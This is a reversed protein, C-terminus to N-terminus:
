FAPGCGNRSPHASRCLGDDPVLHNLRILKTQYDNAILKTLIIGTKSFIFEDNVEVFAFILM